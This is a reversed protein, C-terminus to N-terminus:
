FPYRLGILILKGKKEEVVQKYRRESDEQAERTLKKRQQVLMDEKEMVRTRERAVDQKCDELEQELERV